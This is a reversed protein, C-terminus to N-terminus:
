GPLRIERSSETLTWGSPTILLMKALAYPLVQESWPRPPQEASLQRCARMGMALQESAFGMLMREERLTIRRQDLPYGRFRGAHIDEVPGNRWATNSLANAFIRSPLHAADARASELRSADTAEILKVAFEPHALTMFTRSDLKSKRRPLPLYCVARDVLNWYDQLDTRCLDVWEALASSAEINM